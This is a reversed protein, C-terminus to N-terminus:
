LSGKVGKETVHSYLLSKWETTLILKRDRARNILANRLGTHCYKFDVKKGTLVPFVQDMAWRYTQDMGFLILPVKLYHRMGFDLILDLTDSPIDISDADRRTKPIAVHLVERNFSAYEEMPVPQNECNSDIIWAHPLCPEVDTRAEGTLDEFASGMYTHRVEDGKMPEHWPENINAILQDVNDFKTTLTAFIQPNHAKCFDRLLKVAVRQAKRTPAYLDASVEFPHHKVGIWGAHLAAINANGFDSGFCMAAVRWHAQFGVRHVLGDQNIWCGYHGEPVYDKLQVWNLKPM